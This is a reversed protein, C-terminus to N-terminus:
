TKGNFMERILDKIDDPIVIEESNIIENERQNVCERCLTHIWTGKLKIRETLLNGCEECIFESAQDATIIIRYQEDSPFDTYIRMTGLKQKVQIIRLSIEDEILLNKARKNVPINEFKDKELKELKECTNWILDFWGDHCEFGFGMLSKTLPEEPHFFSFREFLKEELEKTM